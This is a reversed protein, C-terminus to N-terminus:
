SPIYRRQSPSRRDRGPWSLRLVAISFQCRAIRRGTACDISQTEQADEVHQAPSSMARHRIAGFISRRTLRRRPPAFAPSRRTIPPVSIVRTPSSSTGRWFHRLEGRNRQLQITQRLLQRMFHLAPHTDNQDAPWAPHPSKSLHDAAPANIFRQMVLHGPTLRDNLSAAIRFLEKNQGNSTGAGGADRVTTFGRM